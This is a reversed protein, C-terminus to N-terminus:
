TRRNLGMGTQCAAPQYGAERLFILFEESAVDCKGLAFARVSVPPPPGQFDFRGSGGAPRGMVFKGAPVVVMEPCDSCDRFERRGKEEARATVAVVLAATIVCLFWLTRHRWRMRIVHPPGRPRKRVLAYVSRGEGSAPSPLTPPRARLADLIACCAM